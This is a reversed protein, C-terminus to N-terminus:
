VKDPRLVSLAPDPVADGNKAAKIIKKFHKPAAKTDLLQSAEAPRYKEQLPCGMGNTLRDLLAYL